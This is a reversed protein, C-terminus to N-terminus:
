GSFIAEWFLEALLVFFAVLGLVMGIAIGAGGLVGAAGPVASRAGAAIGFVLAAQLVVLGFPVWGWDDARVMTLVLIPLTGLALGVGIAVWGSAPSWLQPQRRAARVGVAGLISGVLGGVVPLPVLSCASLVVGVTGAPHSRPRHPRPAAPGVGAPM